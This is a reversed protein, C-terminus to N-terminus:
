LQFLFALEFSCSLQLFLAADHLTSFEAKIKEYKKRKKLSMDFSEVSLPFLVEFFPEFFETTHYMTNTKGRLM